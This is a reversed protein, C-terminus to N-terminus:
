ALSHQLKLSFLKIIATITLPFCKRHILMLWLMMLECCLYILIENVRNRKSLMPFVSLRKRFCITKLVAEDKRFLKWILRSLNLVNKASIKTYPQFLHKNDQIMAEPNHFCLQRHCQLETPSCTARLTNFFYKLYFGFVAFLLIYLPFNNIAIKKNIRYLIDFNEWGLKGKTQQDLYVCTIRIIYTVFMIREFADLFRRKNNTLPSEREFLITRFEARYPLKLRALVFNKLSWM